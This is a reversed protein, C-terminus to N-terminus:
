VKVFVFVFVFVILITSAKREQGQFEETSGVTVEDFNHEKLKKRIKQVQRRYPAIVGIDKAAVRNEKMSTIEKVYELVTVAEEVNFFSPSSEEKQDQGIIGRFILPVKGRAAESLGSFQLCSNVVVQDACPQLESHYFLRAPVELLSPHSRFNRVLKTICRADYSGEQRSYLVQKEMLRELLSTSLGHRSGLNSRFKFSINGSCNNFSKLHYLLCKGCM